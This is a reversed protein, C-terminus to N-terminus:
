AVSRERRCFRRHPAYLRAGEARFDARQVERVVRAVGGVIAFLDLGPADEPRYDLPIDKGWETKAWIIEVHCHRCKAM